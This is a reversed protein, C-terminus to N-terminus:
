GAASYAVLVEDVPGDMRVAGAELWIARRCTERILHPIHSALILVGARAVLAEMRARAAQQFRIDGAALWEDLLLTEPEFATALAFALRMEMGASYARVPLDLYGGLGTFAAIEGVKEAVDERRWGALLGHLEINRRGTAERRLGVGLGFVGAIRGQVRVEGRDPAYIGAIIKLLTSKGAGNRGIIAIREGEAATLTVSRLAQVRAGGRGTLIAGARLGDGGAEAAEPPAADLVPYALSVNSLEIRTM